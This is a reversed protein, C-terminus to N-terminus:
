GLRIGEERRVRARERATLGGWIGFEERALGWDRCASREACVRCFLKAWAVAPGADAYFLETDIGQCAAASPRPSRAGM